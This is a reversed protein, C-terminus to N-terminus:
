SIEPLRVAELVFLSNAAFRQIKRSFNRPKQTYQEDLTLVTSQEPNLQHVDIQMCRTVVNNPTNIIPQDPITIQNFGAWAPVWQDSKSYHRTLLWCLDEKNEATTIIANPKYSEPVLDLTCRPLDRIIVGPVHKLQQLEHQISPNYMQFAVMQTVRFTGELGLTGEIIDINDAAFQLFVKVSIPHFQFPVM